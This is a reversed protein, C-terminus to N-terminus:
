GLAPKEKGTDKERSSFGLFKSWFMKPAKGSAADEDTGRTSNLTTIDFGCTSCVKKTAVVRFKCRPCLYYQQM